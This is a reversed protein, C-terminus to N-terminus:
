LSNNLARVYSGWFNAFTSWPQPTLWSGLLLKATVSGRSIKLCRPEGIDQWIETLPLRSEFGRGEGQALDHDRVLDTAIALPGVPGHCAWRGALLRRLAIIRREQLDASRPVRRSSATPTATSARM